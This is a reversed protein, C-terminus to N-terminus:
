RFTFQAYKLVDDVLSTNKIVKKIFVDSIECKSGFASRNMKLKVKTQTEFSSNVILSNVFLFLHNHVVPPKVDIKHKKSIHSIISQTIQDRIYDVHSGGVSTCISNVFSVQEASGDTSTVLLKREAGQVKISFTTSFINTLKAGGM